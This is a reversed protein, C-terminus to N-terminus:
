HLEISDKAQLFFLGEQGDFIDMEWVSSRPKHHHGKSDWKDMKIILQWIQWYIKWDCGSQSSFEASKSVSIVVKILSLFLSTLALKLDIEETWKRKSFRKLKLVNWPKFELLYGILFHVSSCQLTTCQILLKYLLCTCSFIIKVFNSYFM